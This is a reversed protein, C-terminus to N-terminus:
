KEIFESMMYGVLGDYNVKTWEGGAEIIEIKADAPMVALIHTHAPAERLNVRCTTHAFEYEKVPKKKKPNEEEGVMQEYFEDM